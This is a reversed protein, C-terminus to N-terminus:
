RIDVLVLNVRKTPRMLILSFILILLFVSKGSGSAGAVLIHPINALDVIIKECRVNYGIIVPLKFGSNHFEPSRYIESFDNKLVVEESVAIFIENDEKFPQFLELGLATKIDGARDFILKERTGKKLRIDFIVPEEGNERDFDLVEINVGHKKYHSEIKNM